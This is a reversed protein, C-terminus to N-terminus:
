NKGNFWPNNLLLNSLKWINPSKWNDTVSKKNLKKTTVSCIQIIQISNFKNLNTKHDLIHNIM